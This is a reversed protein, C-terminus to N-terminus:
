HIFYDAEYFYQQVAHRATSGDDVFSFFFHIHYFLLLLLSFVAFVDVVAVVDVNGDVFIVILEDFVFVARVSGTAVARVM